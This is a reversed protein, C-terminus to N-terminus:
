NTETYTTKSILAKVCLVCVYVNITFSHKLIFRINENKM